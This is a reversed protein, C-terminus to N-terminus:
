DAPDHEVLYSGHDDGLLFRPGAGAGAAADQPNYLRCTALSLCGCGICGTLDDRLSELLTHHPEVSYTRMEGNVRLSIETM